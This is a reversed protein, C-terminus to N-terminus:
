GIELAWRKKGCDWIKGMLRERAWADETKGEPCNTLRKSQSQKSLRVYPATLDVYSYDPRYEKDCHFGLTKYIKGLSWRNDSFSVIREYGKDSAWEVCSQLLKSAGGVVQLSDRFCMRDLVIGETNRNHRGLSMVGLLDGKAFLGFGVVCLNNSGQIHHEDLFDKTERRTIQEVTCKRAYVREDFVGLVSKVHSKCQTRRTAWEDSFITLLQVGDDLCAKFKDHHAYQGRPTPSCDNHWYLGCFEIAVGTAPDYLDLECGKLIKYDSAFNFGLGNLWKQIQQQTKGYNGAPYKGYKALCAERARELIVKSQLPNGVGYRQLCTQKVKAQVDPHKFANDVGYKELCTAKVKTVIEASQLPNDVGYQERLSERQAKQVEESQMPNEVGYKEVCTIKIKAKTEASQLNCDVGFREQSTKKVKAKHEATQSYHSVGYKAQLTERQKQQVAEDQFPNEVGRNVLHTQRIQEKVEENAFVNTTGYKALVAQQQAEQIDPHQMPNAIGYREENTERIKKKVAENQFANDVGFRLRNVEVRKKQVCAYDPCSDKEIHKHARQLNHKLPRFIAGCYDCQVVIEDRQRADAYSCGLEKRTEVYLIM